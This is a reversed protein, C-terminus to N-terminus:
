LMYSRVSLYPPKTGSIPSRILVVISTSNFMASMGYTTYMYECVHVTCTYVVTM